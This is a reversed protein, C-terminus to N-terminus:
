AGGFVDRGIMWLVCAATALLALRNRNDFNTGRVLRLDFASCSARLTREGENRTRGSQSDAIAQRTRM